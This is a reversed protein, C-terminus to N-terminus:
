VKKGIHYNMIHIYVVMLFNTLSHLTWINFNFISYVFFQYLIGTNLQGLIPQLSLNMSDQSCLISYVSILSTTSGLLTWSPKVSPSSQSTRFVSHSNAIHLLLPFPTEPLSLLIHLPM